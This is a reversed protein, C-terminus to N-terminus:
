VEMVEKEKLQEIRQIEDNFKTVLKQVEAEKTKEQDESLVGKTKEAKLTEMIERRVNRVAVRADEAEKKVLKVLEKRREETPQPMSLRILGAEVRPPLGLDSTLLAKEIDKVSNKDYPTIAITRPEPISIGALQKLPTKTGYYDVLVHDLLAPSARGTRIAAYNKRLSEITKKFKEETSRSFDDM